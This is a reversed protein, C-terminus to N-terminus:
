RAPFFDIFAAFLRIQQKKMQGQKLAAARIERLVLGDISLSNKGPWCASGSSFRRSLSVVGNSLVALKIIAYDSFVRRAHTFSCLRSTTASCNETARLLLLLLLLLLLPLLPLLCRPLFRPFFPASSLLSGQRALSRSDSAARPRAAALRPSSLQQGSALSLILLRARRYERDAMPFSQLDRAVVAALHVTISSSTKETGPRAAASLSLALSRSLSVAARRM